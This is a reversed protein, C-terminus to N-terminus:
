YIVFSYVFCFIYFMCVIMSLLHDWLTQHLGGFVEPTHSFTKSTTSMFQCQSFSIKTLHSFIASILGTVKYSQYYWQLRSHYVETILNLTYGGAMLVERYTSTIHAKTQACIECFMKLVRFLNMMITWNFWYKSLKETWIWNFSTSVWFYKSKRGPTKNM